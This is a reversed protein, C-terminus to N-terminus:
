EMRFPRDLPHPRLELENLSREDLDNLSREDLDRLESMHDRRLLARIRVLWRARWGGYIARGYATITM